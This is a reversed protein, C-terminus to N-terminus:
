GTGKEAAPFLAPQKDTIESVLLKRFIPNKLTMALLALSAAIRLNNIEFLSLNSQKARLSLCKPKEAVSSDSVRVSSKHENTM